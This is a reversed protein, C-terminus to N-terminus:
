KIYFKAGVQGISYQSRLVIFSAVIESGVSILHKIETTIICRKGFFMCKFRIKQHFFASMLM